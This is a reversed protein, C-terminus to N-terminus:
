KQAVIVCHIRQPEYYINMKDLKFGAEILLSSLEDVNRHNMKWGVSNSIFTSEFNSVINTTILIGDSDLCEYILLFINIADKDSLYELLGVVEAINFKSKNENNNLYNHAYDNVWRFSPLFRHTSALQQSFAIAEYNKDVFVASLKTDNKLPVEHISEFVARASGSAINIIKIEKNLESLKHIKRKIEKKVMRLRNRVAKSNNMGLWVSLFLNQFYNAKPRPNVDYIVEMARHTGAHAVMEETSVHIKKLIHVARSPFIYLVPIFILNFIKRFISNTEYGVTHDNDIFVGKM